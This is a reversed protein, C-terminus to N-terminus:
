PWKRFDAGATNNVIIAAINVEQKENLKDLTCKWIKGDSSTMTAVLEQNSGVKHPVIARVTTLDSSVNYISVAATIRIKDDVVVEVNTIRPAKLFAFDSATYGIQSSAQEGEQNVIFYSVRSNFNEGSSVNAPVNVSEGDAITQDYPLETKFVPFGKENYITVLYKVVVADSSNVFGNFSLNKPVQPFQVQLSEENLKSMIVNTVASPLNAEPLEVLTSKWNGSVQVGASTGNVRARVWLRAGNPFSAIAPVNGGQPVNYLSLVEYDSGNGSPTYTTNVRTVLNTGNAGLGVLTTFKDDM